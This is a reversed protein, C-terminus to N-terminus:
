KHKGLDIKEKTAYQEIDSTDPLQVGYIECTRKQQLFLPYVAAFDQPQAEKICRRLQSCTDIFHLFHNAM